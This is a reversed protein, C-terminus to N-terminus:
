YDEGRRIGRRSNRFLQVWGAGSGTIVAVESKRAAKM